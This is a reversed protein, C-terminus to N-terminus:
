NLRIVDAYRVGFRLAENHDEFFIDIRNGKISGGEDEAVYERGNIMVRTGAPIVRPDTAITHNVTATAGSSTQRGWGESCKYCPCYATLKFQGLNTGSSASASGSSSQSSSKKSSSSASRAAEAAAAEAAAARAKIEAQEKMKAELWERDMDARKAILTTEADIRANQIEPIELQDIDPFAGTELEATVAADSNNEEARITMSFMVSFIALVFIVSVVLYITKKRFAMLINCM